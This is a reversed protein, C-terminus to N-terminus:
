AALEPPSDSRMVPPDAYRRGLAMPRIASEVGNNDLEAEAIETYRM